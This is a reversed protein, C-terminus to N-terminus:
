AKAERERAYKAATTVCLIYWGTSKQEGHAVTDCVAGVHGTAPVPQAMKQQYFYGGVVTMLLDCVIYGILLKNSM